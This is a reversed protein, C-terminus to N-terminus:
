TSGILLWSGSKIEDLTVAGLSTELWDQFVQLVQAVKGKYVGNLRELADGVKFSPLIPQIPKPETKVFALWETLRIRRPQTDQMAIADEVVEIACGEIVNALDEVTECFPLAEILQELETGIAGDQYAGSETPVVPITNINGTTGVEVDSDLSSRVLEVGLEKSEAAPSNAKPTRLSNLALQTASKAEKAASDRLYWAELISQRLSTIEVSPYCRQQNGKAGRKVPAQFSLGLCQRLIKQAIRIPSDNEKISIGLVSKLVFAYQRCKISLNLLIPSTSTWEMDPQLLRMIDLAELVKIKGGMLSRNTDPMFLEGSGSELQKEMVQQERDPLFERGRTLYYHLRAKAYEGKDELEVLEYCVVEESYRRSLEGKRLAMLEQSTRSSKKRLAEYQKDDPNPCSSVNYCHIRYIRSQSAAIGDKVQDTGDACDDKKLISLYDGARVNHGEAMLARIIEHRYRIMGFNIRAAMHLWTRVSQPQFSRALDFDIQFDSETLFKVHANFQMTQSAMLSGLSTSGNGIRGIGYSGSWVHRPVAERVRAMRQLVSPVPIVGQGIDWVSTIHGTIDISVGTEISPSAIIIDYQPLVQNLKEICLYAPHNPDAISESDIRLIRKDCFFRSLYAELNQTGWKSKAKQGDTCIFPRGGM